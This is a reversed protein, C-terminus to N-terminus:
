SRRCERRTFSEALGTQFFMQRFSEPEDGRRGRGRGKPWAWFLFYLVILVLGAILLAVLVWFAVTSLTAWGTILFRSGVVSLLTVNSSKDGDTATIKLDNDGEASCPVSAYVTVARTEDPELTIKSVPEIWDGASGSFTLDFSDSGKGRNSLYFTLKNTKCKEVTYKDDLTIEPVGNNSVDSCQNGSCGKDCYLVNKWETRCDSNQYLQQKWSELCQFNNLFGATCGPRDGVYFTSSYITSTSDGCGYYDVKIKHQFIENATISCEVTRTSHGPINVYNYDYTSCSMRQCNSDYNYTPDYYYDRCFSAVFNINAGVDGYNYFSITTHINDNLNVDTPTTV